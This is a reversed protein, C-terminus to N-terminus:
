NTEPRRYQEIVVGFEALLRGVAVHVHYGGIELSATRWALAASRFPAAALLALTKGMVKLRGLAGPDNRRQILASLMGNRLSRRRVWDPTARRRPVIEEVVADAAWAFRFGRERARTFFDTDGGGTFNYAEDLLQPGMAELVHMAILCNGTSTVQPAGGRRSVSPRFVPHARYRRATAADPFVPKQPGGVIDAGARGAAVLRSLWFPDAIEDDDIVAVWRAGPQTTMARAFGANYAFCNGQRPEVIAEGIPAGEALVECAAAHGEGGAAHNEVVIVHFPPADRQAALSRLAARLGDPRKFTPLVVVIEASGAGIAGSETSRGETRDEHNAAAQQETAQM